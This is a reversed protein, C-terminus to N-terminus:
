GNTGSRWVTRLLCEPRNKRRSDGSEAFCLYRRQSILIITSHRFGSIAIARIAFIGILKAERVNRQVIDPILVRDFTERYPVARGDMRHAARQQVDEGLTLLRSSHWTARFNEAMLSSCVAANSLWQLTPIRRHINAYRRVISLFTLGTFMRAKPSAGLYIM